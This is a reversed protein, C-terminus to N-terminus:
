KKVPPASAKAPSAGLLKDISDYLAQGSLFIEGSEFDYDERIMGSKDVIFLHPFTVKPNAPTAKMLVATVQGSDFLISYRVHFRVSFQKVKEVNDPPMVISLIPVANGYKDQVKELQAALDQCHPCGTQMVEVLVVKGRYDLIDHYNGNSDPLTFSPIRRGSLPGASLGAACAALCLLIPILKRM